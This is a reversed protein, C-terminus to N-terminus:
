LGHPFFAHPASANWNSSMARKEVQEVEINICDSTRERYPSHLSDDAWRSSMMLARGVSYEPSIRSASLRLADLDEALRTLRLEEGNECAIRFRRGDISVSVQPM